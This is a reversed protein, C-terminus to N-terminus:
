KVGLFTTTILLTFCRNEFERERALSPLRWNGRSSMTIVFCVNGSILILLSRPSKRRVPSDNYVRYM